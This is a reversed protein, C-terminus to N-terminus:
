RVTRVRKNNVFLAKLSNLCGADSEAPGRGLHQDPEGHDRADGDSESHFLSFDVTAPLPRLSESFFVQGILRTVPSADTGFKIRIKGRVFM